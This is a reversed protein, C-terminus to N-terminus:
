MFHISRVRHGRDSISSQIHQQRARREKVVNLIIVDVICNLTQSRHTIKTVSKNQLKTAKVEFNQSHCTKRKVVKLSILNYLIHCIFSIHTHPTPPVMNVPRFQLIQFFFWDMAEKDVV